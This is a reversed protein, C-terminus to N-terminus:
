PKVTNENTQFLGDVAIQNKDIAAADNAARTGVIVKEKSALIPLPDFGKWLPMTSLLSALLSGGRLLWTVVGASATLTSGAMIKVILEHEAQETSPNNMQQQMKEVQEWLSHDAMVSNLAASDLDSAFQMGNNFAPSAVQTAVIARQQQAANISEIPVFFDAISGVEIEGPSPNIADVIIGVSKHLSGDTSGGGSRRDFPEEDANTSTILSDDSNDDNAAPSFIENSDAENVTPAAASSSEADPGSNTGITTEPVIVARRADITFSRLSSSGDTSQARVVIDYSKILQAPLPANLTVVGTAADIAFLGGADDDLSYTITSNVNAYAATVTIGVPTGVPADGAIMNAAGDADSLTPADNVTALETDSSFATAGGHASADVKIGAVGSTQDWARYVIGGSSANVGNSVFRIRDTDQLLLASDNSVVGVDTWTAGDDLSYQFYGSSGDAVQIAIGQLAAADVDAIAGNILSSVRDGQNNVDDEAISTFTVDPASNLAPADNIGHILVTVTATSFGGNGDRVEYNFRDTATVGADLSDFAGNSDYAFSGEAELELTGGSPLTFMAGVNVDEGNVQSVVLADGDSDIDNSLNAVNVTLPADQSTQYGVWQPGVTGAGGDVLVGAPGGGIANATTAGSGEDFQWYGILGAQPIISQNMASRVEADSRAINWIRVEDIQGNFYQGAPNNGRGGIRFDDNTAHADGIVGAGQYLEVLTGNVFTSVVGDDSSVAVHTWTDLGIVVGTDHWSWGPSTNTLAWRLTGTGSLGIEYEGERNLVISGSVANYASPRIWAEMTMSATTLELSADSGVNVLDDIGDFSLGFRDNVAVPADALASVNITKQAVNSVGTDGDSLVFDVTRDAVAPADAANFYAIQRAIAQAIAPTSNANFSLVLAAGGTGGSATAVEVGGYRVSSGLVSVAGAPTIILRDNVTGGASFSVTLTGGNFDSSDPDTVTFGDAVLVPVDNETYAVAGGATDIVPADNVATINVTTSGTVTLAAGSGQASASNGDNFTWDIQAAAPPADSGNSYLVNQMLTNVRAQTANANFSVTLQGANFTATGVQMGEVLVNAGSFTVNTGDFVFQDDADAGGNRALTLTAGDFDNATSLEADFISVNADLVVAAGGKIFTPNGDLTNAVHFRTDLSGDANYSVLAIDADSGNYTRGSVFIKGNTAITVALGEDASTGIGTTVIGSGGFTTDLTGDTNYRVVAFDYDGGDDTRGVAVIKGDSQLAVDAARDAGTGLSTIVTGTGNLSSDLTGNSNYRVLVFDDGSYGAAVLKGDTGIVLGRLAELGGTAHQLVIGGSGFGTDLSGDNNYRVMALDYNGGTGALVIKGDPQVVMTYAAANAPGGLDTTVIGTSNFSTDLTGDTNYRAVAFDSNSGGALLMKGDAQLTVSYAQENGNIATTVTGNGNSGFSTDTTGDANLRLLAFDNNGPYSYGAVLIKGDAQLTLSSGSQQVGASLTYIGGNGFSSDLSGDSLYRAVLFRTPSAATGAVLIKGDPQTVIDAADDDFIVDTTVVGDGDDFTPADNISTVDLM